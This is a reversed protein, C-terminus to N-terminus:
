SFINWLVTLDTLMQMCEYMLYNSVYESGAKASLEYSAGLSPNREVLANHGWLANHLQYQTTVMNGEFSTQKNM